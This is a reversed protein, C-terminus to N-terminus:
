KFSSKQREDLWAENFAIHKIARRKWTYVVHIEGDRTQIVFPYSVEGVSTEALTALRTWTQGEDGSVALRLNNRGTTSDNFILLLRGDALRLAALGSDPNPLDLARPPAWTLGADDTRAVWIKKRQSVDRLFALASNTSLPVLAPQLGSRGGNIRSRTASVATASERLWLLEPLKGFLEQYIPVLWSGDSLLAPGNKVLESINLFPSLTLRRSRSWSRGEDDSEILNLSSGSWGGVTISVFLLRLRGAADSFIVPNGVKKIRRNLDIAARERTMIATPQSWGDAGPDRTAFCIAVDRAGERSGAYWAAALRGNPLECVSAVHSTLLPSDPNIFEEHFVPAASAPPRPAPVVFSPRLSGAGAGSRLLPLGNLLIALLILVWSGARRVGDPIM